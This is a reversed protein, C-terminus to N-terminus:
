VTAAPEAPPTEVPNTIEVKVPTEPVVANALGMNILADKNEPNQVFDLFYAPDNNFQKRIQSPMLNFNEQARTVIMMAEQFDNNPIDDFTYEPKQLAATKAILDMGHKRVIKNIDVEDKHSQETIVVDNSCDLGVSRRIQNGNEDYKTFM